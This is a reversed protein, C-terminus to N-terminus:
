LTQVKYYILHRFGRGILMLYLNSQELRKEYREENTLETWENELDFLKNCYELGIAAKSDKTSVGKPLAEEYKRRQHSWCGCNTVYPVANYGAYGDTQLYGSFGELFRAKCATRLTYASIRVIGSPNQEQRFYVGV